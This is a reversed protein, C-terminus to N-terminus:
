TVRKYHLHRALWCGVEVAEVQSDPARHFRLTWAGPPTHDLARLCPLAWLDPAIPELLEMRGQGLMGSFAGYLAGGADIVALEADLEACHYRGTVDLTPAGSLSKLLSSQNDQPRDMWLSGDGPRLRTPGGVATGDPQLDLRETNHGYRLRLQHPFAADICVALGTEAELYTGVWGSADIAASPPTPEDFIARLIDLVAASADGLHNLLLVM